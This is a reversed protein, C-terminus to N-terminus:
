RFFWDSSDGKKRRPPEGMGGVGFLDMGGGLPQALKERQRAMKLSHIEERAVTNKAHLLKVRRNSEAIEREERRLKQMETPMVEKKVWAKAKDFVGM